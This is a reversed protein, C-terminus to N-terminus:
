NDLDRRVSNGGLTFTALAVLMGVVVMVVLIEILTFGSSDGRSSLDM